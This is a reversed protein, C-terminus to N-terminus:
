MKESASNQLVELKPSSKCREWLGLFAENVATLSEKLTQGGKAKIATATKRNLVVGNTRGYYLAISM